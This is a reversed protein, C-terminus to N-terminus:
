EAKVVARGTCREGKWAIDNGLTGTKGIGENMAALIAIDVFL